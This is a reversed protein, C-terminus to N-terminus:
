RPAAGLEVARRRVEEAMDRDGLLDLLAYLSEHVFTDNNDIDTGVRAHYSILTGAVQQLLNDARIPLRRLPALEGLPEGTWSPFAEQVKVWDPHTPTRDPHQPDFPGDTVRCWDHSLYHAIKGRKNTWDEFTDIGLAKLKERRLEFETRIAHIAIGGWRRTQM